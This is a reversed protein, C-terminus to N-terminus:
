PYIKERLNKWFTNQYEAVPIVPNITFVGGGGGGGGGGYVMDGSYNRIM